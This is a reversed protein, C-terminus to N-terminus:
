NIPLHLSSVAGVIYNEKKHNECPSLLVVLVNIVLYLHSFITYTLSFAIALVTHM